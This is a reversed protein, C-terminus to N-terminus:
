SRDVSVFKSNKNPGENNKKRIENLDVFGLEESTEDESYYEIQGDLSEQSNQLGSRRQSLETEFL